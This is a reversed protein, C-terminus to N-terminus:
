RYYKELSFEQGLLLMGTKPDREGSDFPDDTQKIWQKLRKELKDQIGKYEKKGALNNMEYPDNERDFLWIGHEYKSPEHWRAYLWRETRVGRWFGVWRGRHPWGPGLIQLYVSDPMEGKEGRVVYSLDKGQVGEPIELGCLSLLTPMIDVSSLLTQTRKGGKGLAPFRMIFPIHIAEEHPTAKNARKTYHLWRDDPTGYGYSRLHDGHDASFVLITNEAIGLEDLKAMLRGVQTDIGTINAYYDAIENRAFDALPVPVNPRLEIEAPDYINFEGPYLDYPLHGKGGYGNHPPGFGIHLSFPTGKYRKCHDEIFEIAKTTEIEPSWTHTNIPGKENEYYQVNYYRHDCDHAFMYDLGYRKDKTYPGYGLHWKGIHATRYGARKLAQHFFVQDTRPKYENDVVGNKHSYRGTILQARHPACVPCSSFAQDFVVGQEAIKDINPTSIIKNGNSGLASYRLQDPFIYLINPRDGRTSKSLIAPASKESNVFVSGKGSLTIGTFATGVAGLTAKKLFERRTTKKEM